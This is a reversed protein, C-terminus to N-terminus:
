KVVGKLFASIANKVPLLFINRNSIEMKLAVALKSPAALSDFFSDREEETRFVIITTGKKATALARHVITEAGRCVAGNPYTKDEASFPEEMIHFYIEEKGVIAKVDCEPIADLKSFRVASNVFVNRMIRYIALYRITHKSQSEWQSLGYYGLEEKVKGEEKLKFLVRELNFDGILIPKGNYTLRRFGNKIEEPRLPMYQWSYSANVDNFIQMVAERKVPIKIASIPPFDPVDLGYKLTEPRRLFMGVAFILISLVGLIVFLPNDWPYRTPRYEQVIQKSWSGIIIQFTHNGPTISEPYSYAIQTEGGSFQYQSSTFKKWNKGDMSIEVTRPNVSQNGASFYFVFTRNQWNASRIGAELGTVRVFTQAYVKGERSEVRVLYTGPEVNVPIDKPKEATPNTMGLELEEEQALSGNRYLKVFLKVPKSSDERLQINLRTLQGSLYYPVAVPERPQMEGKPAKELEVVEVKRTKAGGTDEAEASIQAYARNATFASSYLELSGAQKEEGGLEASAEASAIPLLWRQEEILRAIDGAAVEGSTMRQDGRWGGDLSQPLIVLAGGGKSSKVVSVSGYIQGASYLNGTGSASYQADFLRFGDTSSLKAKSFQLNTSAVPETLGDRNLVRDVQFGIYVINNGRELLDEFSFHSDKGFLEKPFYGTPVIVTAGGPLEALKEITIESIPIGRSKLNELLHKRFIPYTDAGDKAYELLFVQTTPKQSYLKLSFKLQSLNEATYGIRYYAVRGLDEGSPSTLIEAQKIEYDAKGVFYGKQAPASPEEPEQQMRWVVFLFSGVVIALVVLIGAIVPNIGFAKQPAPQAKPKEEKEGEKKKFLSKLKEKISEAPTQAEKKIVFNRSISYKKRVDFVYAKKTIRLKSLEPSGKKEEEM